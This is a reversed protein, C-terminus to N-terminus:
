LILFWGKLHLSLSLEALPSYATPNAAKMIPLTACLFGDFLFLPPTLRKAPLKLPFGLRLRLRVWDKIFAAEVRFQHFYVLQSKEQSGGGCWSSLNTRV